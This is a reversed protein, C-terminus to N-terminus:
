YELYDATPHCAMEIVYCEMGDELEVKKHHFDIWSSWCMEFLACASWGLEDGGDVTPIGLLDYFENLCVYSDMALNRNLNYEAREVDLMTSEFYQGSFLDYFLEKGDGVEPGEEAYKDKAISEAIKHNADEGYLEVAKARYEKYSNDLLAYASILSAQQRKNLVNAGVVCTITAVGSVVAPIYAPGAVKVVELKTLEEGKEEKAQELSDMAKPTAKVALVATTVVGIAGVCTLITASNRKIFLQSQRLLNNM